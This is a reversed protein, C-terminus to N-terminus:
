TTPSSDSETRDTSRHPRLLRLLLPVGVVGMALLGYVASYRLEPPDLFVAHALSSGLWTWLFLAIPVADLRPTPTVRRRRDLADVVVAMGAAVVVWGAYNTLPIHAIGPLGADTVCWRWQGDAVMQPDLYLDWGVVGATTLAIRRVRGRTVLSAACWVPYFGATWAFPVVLPVDVLAWGLRGAAYEYCGYPYGTATGVIESVLGIGATTVVMGAAWRGGRTGVAHVISAAALLAVVAVTVVDRVRGDVLPYVIQAGVAAAAVVASVPVLPSRTSM